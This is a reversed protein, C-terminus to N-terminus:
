RSYINMYITVVSFRSNKEDLGFGACSMRWEKHGFLSHLSSWGPVWHTLFTLMTWMEIPDNWTMQDLKVSCVRETYPLYLLILWILSPVWVVLLGSSMSHGLLEAHPKTQLDPLDPLGLRSTFIWRWDRCDCFYIMWSEITIWWIDM